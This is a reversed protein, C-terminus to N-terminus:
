QKWWLRRSAASHPDTTEVAQEIDDPLHYFFDLGTFQELERISLTLGGIHEGKGYNRHETLFAIGEYTKGKKMLLAMWYYRPVVMKGKIREAEIQDDRITGGKAVYLQDCFARDRAWEQVRNELRHWIGANHTQLQPSMNTYYFTQRNAEASFLRDSSAVIHGRDYGSGRFLNETSFQKPVYPDWQWADSRKVAQASNTNDFTFCVFRPHRKDTDYELSYNVIGGARHTVFYNQSGGHLAPVELMTADGLIYEGTPSPTPTPTPTVEGTGQQSIILTDRVGASTAIIQASRSAGFNQSVSVSISTSSTGDGKSRELEIWSSADEPTVTLKWDSAARLKIYFNAGEKPVSKIKDTSSGPLSLQLRDSTRIPHDGRETTCSSFAMGMLGLGMLITKIRLSKITKQM